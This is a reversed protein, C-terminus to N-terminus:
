HKIHQSSHFLIVFILILEFHRVYERQNLEFQTEVSLSISKGENNHSSMAKMMQDVILVFGDFATVATNSNDWSVTQMCQLHPPYYVTQPSCNRFIKM